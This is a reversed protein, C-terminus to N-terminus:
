MDNFPSSQFGFRMMVAVANGVHAQVDNSGQEVAGLTNNKTGHRLKMKESMNMRLKNRMPLEDEPATGKPVMSAMTSIHNRM